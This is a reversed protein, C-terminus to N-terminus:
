TRRRRSTWRRARRRTYKRVRARGTRGYQLVRRARQERQDGAGAHRDAAWRAHSTAPSSTASTAPRSPSPFRRRTRRPRRLSLRRRLLGDAGSAAGTSRTSPASTTDSSRSITEVRKVIDQCDDFVGEVAINHINADPLSFMQARQFASMRGAPSCSGNVGKRGRM